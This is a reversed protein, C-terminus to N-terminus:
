NNATGEATRRCRNTASAFPEAWLNTVNVVLTKRGTQRRSSGDRSRHNGLARWNMAM